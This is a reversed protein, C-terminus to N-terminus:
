NQLKYEFAIIQICSHISKKVSSFLIYKLLSVHDESSFIEVRSERSLGEVASVGRRFYVSSIM